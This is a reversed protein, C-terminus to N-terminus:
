HVIPIFLMGSKTLREGAIENEEAIASVKTNCRKAIDWVDEGVTGYYLKLACDSDRLLKQEDDINLDCICSQQLYPLLKGRLCLTAKISISGDVALHYSCDAPEVETYLVADSVPATLAVVSEFAEEKELLFPMGEGDCALVGCCLMGSIKISKKEPTISTSINKVRCRLDSIFDVSSDGAPVTTSCVFSEEISIPTQDIRLPTNTCECLHTTSYADTVVQVEASRFAVCCLRLDLECKLLRQAGSKDAVPKVECRIIQVDASGKFSEDIKDMDVIQSYPLTFQMTESTEKSESETSYLVNVNIEGRVVLKGAIVNQEGQMSRATCRLISIIPSKSSGIEVDEQLTIVKVASRKQSAYDITKKRCQVNMGFIDTIVEQANDGTIRVRVSVAGRVDLRRKSVARCNAYDTKTIFTVSPNDPLKGTEISKSYTLKQTVCQLKNSGAGCYLIRIEVHLEYSIRDASLRYEPVTPQLECSIIRFIEPNYDPLVYDLEVGQEQSEDLITETVPIIERNIKLDM